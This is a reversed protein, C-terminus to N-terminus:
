SKFFVTKCYTSFLNYMKEDVEKDAEIVIISGGVGTHFKRKKFGLEKESKFYYKIGQPTEKEPTKNETSKQNTTKNKNAM